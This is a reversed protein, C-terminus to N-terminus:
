KGIKNNRFLISALRVGFIAGIIGGWIEQHLTLGILTGLACGGIIFIAIMLIKNKEKFM